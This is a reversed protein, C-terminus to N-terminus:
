EGKVHTDFFELSERMASSFNTSINHNDGQYVFLESLKGAIEMREQLKESMSVPVSTDGTAHHLQLPGSIDALYSTPSISQWFPNDETADGYKEILETRWKGRRTFQTPVPPPTGSPTNSRRRWNYVLDPYSGVVGAWIVGAKIDPNIVMARLTISGGMSHGWMGIRNRDVGPYNQLSSFANLVDITYSPSGYGGEANGESNGHGRYDPKLVVYGNRSFYDTYAVYKETTRYIDPDIYGHNFVVAPWGSEPAEGHPITLLAFQKLGESKYSVIHRNYNTGASLTQEITIESGPYDQKRM